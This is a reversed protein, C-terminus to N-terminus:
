CFAWITTFAILFFSHQIGRQVSAISPGRDESPPFGALVASLLPLVRRTRYTPSISRIYPYEFSSFAYEGAQPNCTIWEEVRRILAELESLPINLSSPGWSAQAAYTSPRRRKRDLQYVGSGQPEDGHLQSARDREDRPRHGAGGSTSTHAEELSSMDSRRSFMHNLPLPHRSIVDRARSRVYTGHCLQVFLKTM